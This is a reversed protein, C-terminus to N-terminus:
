GIIPTDYRVTTLEHIWYEFLGVIVLVGGVAAPVPLTPGLQLGAQKLTSSTWTQVSRFLLTVRLTLSLRIPDPSPGKHEIIPIMVPGFAGCADPRIFVFPITRISWFRAVAQIPLGADVVLTSRLTQYVLVTRCSVATVTLPTNGYIGTVASVALTRAEVSDTMNGRMFVTEITVDLLTLVATDVVVITRLCMWHTTMTSTSSVSTPTISVRVTLSSLDTVGCISISIPVFMLTNIINTTVVIVLVTRSEISNTVNRSMIVAEITSPFVALIATDVVVVAM